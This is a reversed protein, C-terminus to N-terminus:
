APWIGMPGDAWCEAPMDKLGDAVSFTAGLASRLADVSDGPAIEILRLGEDTLDFVARETVYKIVQGRALAVQSSMTLQQVAPVFKRHGKDGILATFVVRHVGQTIDIFGGCGPIRDGFRSVNVNGQSDIEGVGLYAMDVTGGAFARVMDTSDVIATPNHAAPFTRGGVAYPNIGGVAGHEIAFTIEEFFGEEIAVNPLNGPLGFGIAAIDGPRAELLARRQVVKSPSLAVMPVRSLPMKEAGVLTPDFRQTPTQPQEPCVVVHDVLYGPVRVRRPDLSGAPLVERVQAIVTGGNSRGAQALLLSGIVTPDDETTLNGNADAATARLFVVDPRVARYFLHESGDIELLSVLEDKSVNNLAGGTKRPDVFTGLGIDTIYGPSSSAGAQLMGFLPGVPINYAEVLDDHIRQILPPVGIPWYSSGIMKTILGEGDLISLGYGESEGTRFPHIETLGNPSGTQAHVRVLSEILVDPIQVGGAGGIVLVSGNPIQRVLADVDGVLKSTM